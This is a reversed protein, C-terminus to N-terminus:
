RRAGLDTAMIIRTLATFGEREYLARARNNGPNIELTLRSWGREKAVKTALALAERGIGQQRLHAPVFLEDLVGIVGGYENSFFPVLIMYGVVDDGRRLLFPSVHDPMRLMREAQATARELTMVTSSPDDVYLRVVMAAFTAVDTSTLPVLSLDSPTM